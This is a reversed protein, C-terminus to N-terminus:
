TGTGCSPMPTTTEILSGPTTTTTGYPVCSPCCQGEVEVKETGEACPVCIPERCVVMKSAHCTCNMCEGESWTEGVERFHGDNGPEECWDNISRCSCCVDDDAAHNVIEYGEGCKMSCHEGCSVTGDTKCKCKQCEGEEWTEGIEYIMDNHLCKDQCYCCGNMPDVLTQSDSCEANCSEACEFDGGVCVCTTCNDSAFSEGFQYIM